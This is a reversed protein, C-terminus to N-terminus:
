IKGHQIIEVFKFVNLFDMLGSSAKQLANNKLQNQLSADGDTSGACIL